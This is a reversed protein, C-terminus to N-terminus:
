RELELKLAQLREHWDPHADTYERVIPGPAGLLNLMEEFDSATYHHEELPEAFM